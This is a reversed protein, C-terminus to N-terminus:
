SSKKSSTAPLKYNSLDSDSLDFDVGDGLLEPLTPLKVTDDTVLITKDIEKLKPLESPFLLDAGTSIFGLDHDLPLESPSPLESVSAMSAAQMSAPLMAFKAEPSSLEKTMSYLLILERYALMDLPQHNQGPQRFISEEIVAQAESPISWAQQISQLVSPVDELGRSEYASYQDFEPVQANFVQNFQERLEMYDAERNTRHYIDFLDMYALASTEVNDTIHNKLVEIAQEPQDLSLFFDAQEQIDFLEEAAVVRLGTFASTGFDAQGSAMSRGRSMNVQVLNETSAQSASLSESDAAPSLEAQSQGAQSKKSLVGLSPKLKSVRKLSKNKEQSALETEKSVYAKSVSGSLVKDAAFVDSDSQASGSKLSQTGTNLHSWHSQLDDNEAAKNKTGWWPQGQVKSRQWAWVSLGILGLCLLSLFLTLPNLYRESQAVQLESSLKSVESELRKKQELALLAQSESAQLRQQERMAEEPTANLARWLAQAQVRTAQDTSPFSTLESSGRLSLDARAFDLLDVQLRPTAAQKEPASSRASQSKQSPQQQALAQRAQQRQLRLAARESRSQAAKNGGAANSASPSSSTSAGSAVRAASPVASVSTSPKLAPAFSVAQSPEVESLAESLLVYRRSFSANCSAKVFMTVVPEDVILTSRIRLRSENSSRESSISISNASVRSDGYFVEVAFCSLDPSAEQGDLNIQVSIDLGRGLLPVGRVRGLSAAYAVSSALFWVIGAIIQWRKFFM